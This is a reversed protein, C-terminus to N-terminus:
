IFICLLPRYAKTGVFNNCDMFNNKLKTMIADDIFKKWIDLRGYRRSPMIISGWQHEVARMPMLFAEKKEDVDVWGLRTAVEVRAETRQKKTAQGDVKGQITAPSTRRLFLYITDNTRLISEHYQSTNWVRPSTTTLHHPLLFAHATVESSSIGAIASGM